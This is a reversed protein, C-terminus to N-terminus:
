FNGPRPSVILILYTSDKTLPSRDFDGYLEDISFNALRFEDLLKDVSLINQTVEYSLREVKGDPLLHDYYWTIMMHNTTRTWASSVQVPEGDLPHPFVDEIDPEANKPLRKLYEPNPMSTSFVGTPKLHKFVRTLVKSRQELTLTTYTNCPLLILSFNQMISFESLDGLILHTRQHIHAPMHRRLYALMDPDHDLGFVLHGEEALPVLVRGTGCGLELIPDGQQAALDLWFPIDEADRSNHIHYLPPFAHQHDLQPM